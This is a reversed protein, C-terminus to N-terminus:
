AAVKEAEVSVMEFEPLSGLLNFANRALGRPVQGALHTLRAGNDPFVNFIGYDGDDTRIAFWATTQPEEMVLPQVSRLFEEVEPEHGSKPKFTLLMGKTDLVARPPVKDALVDLRNIRPESEFLEGTLNNLSQAVPGALHAERAAEDSFTDFIGYEGEGFKVAFWAITGPEDEVLPLVSRLFDEVDRDRGPMADLRVLLGTHTM